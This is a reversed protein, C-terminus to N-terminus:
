TIFFSGSLSFMHLVYNFALRLLNKRLIQVKYITFNISNRYKCVLLFDNEKNRIIFHQFMSGKSKIWSNNYRREWALLLQEDGERHLSLLGSRDSIQFIFIWCQSLISVCRNIWLLLLLLSCLHLHIHSHAITCEQVRSHTEQYKISTAFFCM